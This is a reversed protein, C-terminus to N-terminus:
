GGSGSRSLVVQDTGLFCEIVTRDALVTAPDGTAIVVGADLAVLRDAVSALLAIDHEVVLLSMGLADRLRLLLPGLSEAERQAIGSSPEDLLVVQPERAVVSALDVLRRTGTSLEGVFKSRYPVLGFLEVLEAVRAAAVSDSVLAAPTALAASAVDRVDLLAHLAALLTEEVTLNPFLRSDQFSRALGLRVRAAPSLGNVVAGNLVVAGEAPSTVGAVLDLLTTKGAGNAGLLGVIEGAGISLNVNDVARIGGFSVSLHRLTLVSQDGTRTSREPARTEVEELRDAAEHLFVSRLVDPRRLLEATPGSFRIEGKEMFYARDAISLAVNVSQEVVIVTTGQDALARVADLLGAVVTPALGLSLEDIMLLRPRSLLAMSLALMQQQGGSLEGAPRDRAAKLSPFREYAATEATRRAPDNHRLSWGACRLNEAVTLDEFVGAGGPMHAIGHAAIEDPPAHTIDRGDFIVVGRDAISLGSIAKLVTSKGAGNTGLLAIVSGEEVDLDVGFLVRVAGYGVHVNRLSLLPLKGAHRDALMQARTATATWVQSIDDDIVLGVSSILWGGVLFVPAMAAMGWRFGWHDGVWGVLPIVLLGPLVWLAGISFGMARSRAPVALALSTMVGPGIVVLSAAILCHALVATLVNPAAAFAVVLVSAAVTVWALLRFVKSADRQQAGILLKAGVAAGILEMALVPATAVARQRENLGFTESYQLAALAVFGVISVALFPLAAFVRRLSRVTWVMRVAEAFSPPDEDQLDSAGGAAAREFHGRGPDRLRLGVVAILVLPVFVVIFPVRWGYTGGLWAGLGLGALGGASQAGRHLAFARPRAEIPVYDALLSNHTPLVFSQGLAAGSRSIVLMWVAVSLGTTLSFLAGLAAGFLALRTRDARDAWGAVPVTLLLACGLAVAVVSLVGTNSLGFHDRINPLLLGYASRDMEDVFHLGCLVAVPFWAAGGFWGAEPRSIRLPHTVPEPQTAVLFETTAAPDTRRPGTPRSDTM